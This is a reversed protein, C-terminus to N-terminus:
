RKIVMVFHLLSKRNFETAHMKNIYNTSSLWSPNMFQLLSNELFKGTHINNLNRHLSMVSAM